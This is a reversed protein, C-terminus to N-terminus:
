RISRDEVPTQTDLKPYAPHTRASKHHPVSAAYAKELAPQMCWPMCSPLPITKTKLCGVGWGKVLPRSKERPLLTKCKSILGATKVGCLIDSWKTM